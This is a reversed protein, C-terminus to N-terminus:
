HSYNLVKFSLFNGDIQKIKVDSDNAFRQGAELVVRAGFSFGFMYINDPDFSANRVLDNIKNTLLTVIGEFNNVKLQLYNQVSYKSYDMCM